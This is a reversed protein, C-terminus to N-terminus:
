VTDLLISVRERCSARGIKKLFNTLEKYWALKYVYKDSDVASGNPCYVNIVRIPGQESDYTSAILRQQADEFLSIPLACTQVGTVNRDRIGDEAQFFFISVD